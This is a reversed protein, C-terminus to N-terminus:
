KDNSKKDAVASIDIQAECTLPGTGNCILTVTGKGITFVNHGMPVQKEVGPGTVYCSANAGAANTCTVSAPGTVKATGPQQNGGADTYSKIIRSGASAVQLLGAAFVLSIAIFVKM